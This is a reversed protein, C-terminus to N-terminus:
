RPVYDFARHRQPQPLAPNGVVRDLTAHLQGPSYGSHSLAAWVWYEGAPIARTYQQWDGSTAGQIRYNTAAVWGVRELGYRGGINPVLSLGDPALQTRYV